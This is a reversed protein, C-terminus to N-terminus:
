DWFVTCAERWKNRLIRKGESRVGTEKLQEPVQQLEDKRQTIVSDRIVELLKMKLTKM